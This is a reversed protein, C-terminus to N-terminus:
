VINENESFTCMFCAYVQLFSIIVFHNWINLRFNFPFEIRFQHTNQFIHYIQFFIKTMHVHIEKITDVINKYLYQTSHLYVCMYGNTGYIQNDWIYIMHAIFLVVCYCLRYIRHYSIHRFLFFIMPNSNITIENLSICSVYCNM